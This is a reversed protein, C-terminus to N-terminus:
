VVDTFVATFRGLHTANGEGTGQILLNPPAFTSRDSATFSGRLPLRTANRQTQTPALPMSTPSTPSNSVQDGCAAALVSAALVIPRMVIPRMPAGEWQLSPTTVAGAQHTPSPSVRRSRSSGVIVM